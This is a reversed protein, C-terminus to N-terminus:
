RTATPAEHPQKTATANWRSKAMERGKASLCLPEEGSEGDSADRIEGHEQRLEDVVFRFEELTCFDLQGLRKYLGIFSISIGTRTEEELKLLEALATDLAKGRASAAKEHSDTLIFKGSSWKSEDM